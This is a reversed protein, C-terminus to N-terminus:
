VRSPLVFCTSIKNISGWNVIIETQSQKAIIKDRSNKWIRTFVQFELFMIFNM